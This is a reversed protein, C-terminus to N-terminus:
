KNISVASLYPYASSTLRLRLDNLENFGLRINLADLINEITAEGDICDFITKALNDTPSEPQPFSMSKETCVFHNDNSKIYLDFEASSKKFTTDLFTQCIQKESKVTYDSDTRQVYFWVHPSEELKLLNCIKWRTLDPLQEYQEALEKDQFKLNWSLNNRAKDWQNICNALIELDCTEVLDNFSEVTYSHEVPQLLADALDAEHTNKYNDLFGAMLTSCSEVSNKIIASTLSLEQDIVNGNSNEPSNQCMMRIAKQFATTTIRDYYNYVFLELVGNKKLAKRLGKLPISPDM